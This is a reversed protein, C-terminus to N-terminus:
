QHGITVLWRQGSYQYELWDPAPATHVRVEDWSTMQTLGVGFRLEVYELAQNRAEVLDDPASPAESESVQCGAVFLLFSVVLVLRRYMEHEKAIEARILESRRWSNAAALGM